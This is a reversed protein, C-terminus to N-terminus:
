SRRVSSTWCKFRRKSHRRAALLRRVSDMFAKARIVADHASIRARSAMRSAGLDLTARVADGGVPDGIAQTTASIRGARTEVGATKCRCWADRNMTWWRTECTDSADRRPCVDLNQRVTTEFAKQAGMRLLMGENRRRRKHPWASKVLGLYSEASGARSRPHLM